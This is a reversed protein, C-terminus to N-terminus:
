VLARKAQYKVLIAEAETGTIKGAKKQKAVANVLKYYAENTGSLLFWEGAEKFIRRAAVPDPIILNAEKNTM